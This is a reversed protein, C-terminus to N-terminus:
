GPRAAQDLRLSRELHGYGVDGTDATIRVPSENLVVTDGPLDWGVGNLNDHQQTVSITCGHLVELAFVRETGRDDIVLDFAKPENSITHVAHRRATVSRYGRDDFWAGVTLVPTQDQKWVNIVHFTYGPMIGVVWQDGAFHTLDRSGRSHDNCGIGAVRHDVGDVTITGTVRFTQQSHSSRAFDPMPVGASPQLNWIPGIAQAELDWRVPLRVGGGSLSRVMQDSDSVEGAGEYRLKLRQLPEVVDLTVNGTRAGADGNRGWNVDSTLKGDPLYTIAQCWWLDLDTPHRGMHLFVGVGSAPSWAEFFTTENWRPVDHQPDGFHDATPPVDLPNTVPELGLGAIASM